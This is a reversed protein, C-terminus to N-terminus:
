GRGTLEMKLPKDLLLHPLAWSCSVQINCHLVDMAQLAEM